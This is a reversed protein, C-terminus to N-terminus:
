LPVPSPLRGSEQAAELYAKPWAVGLRDYAAITAGIDTSKKAVLNSLTDLLQVHAMELPHDYGPETVLAGVENRVAEADNLDGRAVFLAALGLLAWIQCDRNGIARALEVAKRYEAIADSSDEYRLAEGLALRANALARLDSAELARALADRASKVAESTDGLKALSRALVRDLNGLDPASDRLSQLRMVSRRLGDHDMVDRLATNLIFEREIQLDSREPLRREIAESLTWVAEYANRRLSLKMRLLKAQMSILEDTATEAFSLAEEAEAYRGLDIRTKAALLAHELMGDEKAAPAPNWSADLIALAEAQTGSGILRRSLTLLDGPTQRHALLETVAGILPMAEPNSLYDAGGDTLVSYWASVIEERRQATLSDAWERQYSSHYFSAHSGDLKFEDGSVLEDLGAGFGAVGSITAARELLNKDVSADLKAPALLEAIARASATYRLRRARHLAETSIPRPALGGTRWASLVDRILQARGGSSLGMLEELEQASPPKGFVSAYWEAAGDKSVANVTRVTGGNLELLPRLSSSWDAQRPKEGNNSAILTWTSPNINILHRVASSVSPEAEEYNDIVVVAVVGLAALMETYKAVFYRQNESELELMADAVTGELADGAIAEKVVTAINEVKDSVAAVADAFAAGLLKRLLGPAQEVIRACVEAAEVETDAQAKKLQAYLAANFLPEGALGAVNLRVVMAGVRAAIVEGLAEAVASKGIGTVGELGFYRCGQDVAGELQSLLTERGFLRKAPPVPAVIDVM